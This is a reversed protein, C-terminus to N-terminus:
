MWSQTRCARLLLWRLWRSRLEERPLVVVPRGPLFLALLLSDLLARHTRLTCCRTARPAMARGDDFRVRRM